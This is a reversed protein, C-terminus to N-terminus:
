QNMFPIAKKSDGMKKKCWDWTEQSECLEDNKAQEQRQATDLLRKRVVSMDCPGYCSTIEKQLKRDLLEFDKGLDEIEAVIGKGKHVWYALIWQQTETNFFTLMGPDNLHRQFFRSAETERIFHKESDIWTLDM